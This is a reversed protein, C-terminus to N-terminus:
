EVKSGPPVLKPEALLMEYEKLVMRRKDASPDDSMKRHSVASEWPAAVLVHSNRADVFNFSTM